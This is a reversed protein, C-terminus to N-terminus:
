LVRLNIHGKESTMTADEYYYIVGKELKLYRKKFNRYSTLHVINPILMHFVVCVLSVIIYRILHGRKQAWGRRPDPWGEPNRTREEQLVRLKRRAIKARYLSQVRIVAWLKVRDNHSSIIVSKKYHKWAAQILRAAPEYLEKPNSSSSANRVARLRGALLMRDTAALLNSRASKSLSDLTLQLSEIKTGLCCFCTSYMMNSINYNQKKFKSSSGKYNSHVKPLTYEESLLEDVGFKLREDRFAIEPVRFSLFSNRSVFFILM